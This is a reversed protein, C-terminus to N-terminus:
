ENKTKYVFVGGEEFVMEFDEPYEKVWDLEFPYVGELGDRISYGLVLYDVGRQQLNRKWSQYDPNDRLTMGKEHYGFYDCSDCDNINVYGVKRRLKKGYLPYYLPNLSNAIVADEPVHEDIWTHAKMIPFSYKQQWSESRLEARVPIVQALFSYTLVLSIFGAAYRWWQRRRWSEFFLFGGLLVLFLLFFLLQHRSVYTFDLFMQDGTRQAVVETLFQWWIVGMLGIVFAKKAAGLKYVVYVVMLMSLMLWPMAYRVNHEMMSATYPATFYLYWYAPLFFLMLTYIKGEGRKMASFLLKYVMEIVLLAYAFVVLYMHWGTEQIMAQLWDGWEGSQTVRHWMSLEQIRETLGMYGEFLTWNGLHVSAPFIPNGTLILNRWYWMSGLTGLILFFWLWWRLHTKRWSQHLFFFVVVIPIIYIISLYKTGLMIAMNLLLPILLLGDRRKHTRLFCYWSILVGLAMLLDVQGTGFQRLFIPMVMVLAGAMWALFADVNMERLIKYIVVVMVGIIPFNLLNALYDNGFPLILWSLLLEHNSPYYGLPGGWVAYFIKWLSEAQLWEVVIPMHYAITDYEWPYQVFANFLEIAGFLVLFGFIGWIWDGGEIKEQRFFHQRLKNWAGFVGLQFRHGLFPWKVAGLLFCIVTGAIVAQLHLLGLFGIVGLVVLVESVVFLFFLILWDFVDRIEAEFYRWVLTNATSFLLFQLGVFILFSSLLEPM